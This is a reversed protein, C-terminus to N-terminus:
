LLISVVACWLLGLLKQQDFELISIDGPEPLKQNRNQRLNWGVQSIGIAQRTGPHFKWQEPGLDHNVPSSLRSSRLWIINM